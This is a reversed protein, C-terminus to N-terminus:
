LVEVGKAKGVPWLTWYHLILPPMIISPYKVIPLLNGVLLWKGKPGSACILLDVTSPGATDVNISEM